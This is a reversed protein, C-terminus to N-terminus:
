IRRVQGSPATVEDLTTVVIRLAARWTAPILPIATVALLISRAKTSAAAEGRGRLGIM